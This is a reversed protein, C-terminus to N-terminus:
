LETKKWMISYRWLLHPRVRAGPLLDVCARRIQHLTLFSDSRAHEDWAQRVERPERLRGNRIAKMFTSLAVAMAEIPYRQPGKLQFLDLILLTGGTKLAEKMRRLMPEFPMHHLTAISVICDFHGAPLERTMADAIEFNINPYQESNERAIRIMEPSLDLALVRDSRKALLRSFTGTGCGIELADAFHPALQKLLFNHYHNNHSWGDRSLLAIRDFDARVALTSKFM